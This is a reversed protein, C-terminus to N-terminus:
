KGTTSWHWAELDRNYLHYTAANQKLWTLCTSYEIMAYGNCAFDIALGENHLSKGPPETPPSCQESPKQYINFDGLGCNAKRLEVQYECSRYAVSLLIPVGQSQADTILKSVFPALKKQVKGGSVTVLNAKEWEKDHCTIVSQDPAPPLSQVYTVASQAQIAVAGSVAILQAVWGLM